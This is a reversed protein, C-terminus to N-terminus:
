NGIKAAHDCGPDCTFNIKGRLFAKVLPANNVTPEDYCVRVDGPQKLIDVFDRPYYPTGQMKRNISPFYAYKNATSQKQWDAWIKDIFGHHLFFEPAEASDVTCM